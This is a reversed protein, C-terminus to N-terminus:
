CSSTISLIAFDLFTKCNQM